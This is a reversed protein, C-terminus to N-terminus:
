VLNADVLNAGVLNADVLNAGVLDADVLDAGVLNAGGLDAGVLNAGGLDAGKLCSGRLNARHARFVSGGDVFLLTLLSQVEESPRTPHKTGYDGARTTERIHACLVDLVTRRYDETARALHFLEYAGGLRVSVSDKNGLHGIASKLLDQRLGDEAATARNYFLIAQMAFLLGGMGVGLFVLIENKTSLGLLQGVCAEVGECVTTLVFAIFFLVLLCLASSWLWERKMMNLRPRVHSEWFSDRTSTM